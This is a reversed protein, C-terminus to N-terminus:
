RVVIIKVINDLYISNKWASIIFIGDKLYSFTLFITAFFLLRMMRNRKRYYYIKVCWFLFFLTTAGRMYHAFAEITPLQPEM